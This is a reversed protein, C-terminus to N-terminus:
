WPAQNVNAGGPDIAIAAARQNILRSAQIGFARAGGSPNICFTAQTGPAFSIADRNADQARWTNVGGLTQREFAQFLRQRRQAGTIIRVGIMDMGGVEGGGTDGGQTAPPRVAGVIHNIVRIQFHRIIKIQHGISESECTRRTQRALSGTGNKRGDLHREHAFRPTDSIPTYFLFQFQTKGERGHALSDGIGQL